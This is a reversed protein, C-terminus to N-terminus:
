GGGGSDTAGSDAAGGDMGGGSDVGGGSDMAGGDMGGLLAQVAQMEPVVGLCTQGAGSPAVAPSPCSTGAPFLKV